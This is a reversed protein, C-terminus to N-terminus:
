LLPEIRRCIDQAAQDPTQDGELAATLEVSIIDVMEPWRAHTPDFDSAATAALWEEGMPNKEIFAPEQYVSERVPANAFEVAMTTQNESNSLWQILQWAADKHSSSVDMALSWLTNLGRGPEVGEATPMLAWGILNPDVDAVIRGYYPSFYIGMAADGTQLLRITADRGLSLMDAPAAASQNLESWFRITEVGAPEDLVCETSDENLYSGGFAFLTRSFDQQMEFGPKGRIVLGATDSESSVKQAAALLEEMTQPVDIGVDDLIDKRYYLMTTGGRFPMAVLRDSVTNVNILSAIIGDFDYDQGAQDVYEDLPQLFSTVEDNMWASQLTAVDYRGTGAVYDIVAKERLQDSPATVVNVEIGTQETFEGILGGDGGTAEYLTPHILLTVPGQDQATASASVQIALMGIVLLILQGFTRARNLIM